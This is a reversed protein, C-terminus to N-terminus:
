RFEFSLSGKSLLLMTSAGRGVFSRGLRILSHRFKDEFLRLRGGSGLKMELSHKPFKTGDVRTVQAEKRLFAPVGDVIMVCSSISTPDIVVLM